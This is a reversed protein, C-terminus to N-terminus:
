KWVCEGSSLEFFMVIIEKWFKTKEDAEEGVYYHGLYWSINSRVVSGADEIDSAVQKLILYNVWSDIFKYAESESKIRCLADCVDGLTHYEFDREKFSFRHKECYKRNREISLEIADKYVDMKEEGKYQIM